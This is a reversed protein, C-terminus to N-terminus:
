RQAKRAARAAKTKKRNKARVKNMPPANASRDRVSEYKKTEIVKLAQENGLVLSSPGKSQGTIVVQDEPVRMLAELEAARKPDGSAVTMRSEPSPEAYSTGLNRRLASLLAPDIPSLEDYVMVGPMWPERSM